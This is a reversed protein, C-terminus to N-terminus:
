FYLKEKKRAAEDQHSALPMQLNKLSIRSTTDLIQKKTNSCNYIISFNFYKILLKRVTLLM